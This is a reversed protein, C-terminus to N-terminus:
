TPSKSLGVAPVLGEDVVVWIAAGFPLGAGITTEPMAEAVVGYIAGSSVGMAYHFVAGAVEKESQTLEHNFIAVSLANALRARLIRRTMRARNRCSADSAM